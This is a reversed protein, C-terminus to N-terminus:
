DNQSALRNIRGRWVASSGSPMVWIYNEEDVWYAFSKEFGKLENPFGMNELVPKWVLGANHSVYFRQFATLKEEGCQGKGGFVYLKNNYHILAMHEMRPCNYKHMETVYPTWTFLDTSYGSWVTTSDVSSNQGVMVLQEIEPNLAYPITVSAFRGTPFNEPLLVGPQSWQMVGDSMSGQIFENRDVALVNSKSVAVIGTAQRSVKQWNLADTSFYIEGGAVMLLGGEFPVVSSCDAQGVLGQLPEFATWALGKDSSTVQVQAGVEAFVYMRNQFNVAKSLGTIAAGPFSGDDLKNWCLSDPEVQHVNLRVEYLRDTTGDPAYVTFVIPNTFDLSDSSNWSCVSDKGSHGKVGYSIYSGPEGTSINVVVKRVNTRYPLSDANFIKRETQNITFVCEKGKVRLVTTDKGDILVTKIDNISFSTITAEDSYVIKRNDDLCSTVVSTLVMLGALLPLIKIKM